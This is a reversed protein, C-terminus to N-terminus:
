TWASQATIYVGVVVVACAFAVSLAGRNKRLRKALQFGIVGGALGGAVFTAALQWDVLGSFAYSTATATGFATVAVLSSGIAYSLPMGTALMLGPVILFGGGIGFFGSLLGVAAGIVLLSPVLRPATESTLKVSPDGSQDRRVFMVIGVVIMMAGFLALLIDSDISKAVYAGLVAGGVGIGSFVMACRWKVMGARAYAFLNVLASAAVAVAGTGIAVHTSPVGVLYIMLPVAIISGGAGILGLILGVLAGSALAILLSEPMM